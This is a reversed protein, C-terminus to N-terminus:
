TEDVNLKVFIHQAHSRTSGNMRSSSPKSRISQADKSGPRSAPYIRISRKSKDGPIMTLLIDQHASTNLGNGIGNGNGDNHHHNETFGNFHSSSATINRHQHPFIEVIQDSAWRTINDLAQQERKVEEPSLVNQPPPTSSNWSGYNQSPQSYPDDYLLRTRETQLPSHTDTYQVINYKTYLPLLSRMGRRPREKWRPM